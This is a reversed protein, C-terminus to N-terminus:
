LNGYSDNNYIYYLKYTSRACKAEQGICVIVGRLNQFNEVTKIFDLTQAGPFAGHQVVGDAGGRAGYLRAGPAQLFALLADPPYYEADCGHDGESCVEAHLECRDPPLGPREPHARSTLHPEAARHIGGM